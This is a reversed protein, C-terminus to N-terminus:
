LSKLKKIISNARDARAGYNDEVSSDVYGGIDISIWTTVLGQLEKIAEDRGAKSRIDFNMSPLFNKLGMELDVIQRERQEAEQM